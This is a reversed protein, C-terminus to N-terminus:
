GIHYKKAIDADATHFTKGKNIFSYVRAYGWQEPGLRASRPYKKVDGSKSFDKKLRVSAINTKWAGRGRDWVEYLADIPLDTLDALEELGLSANRPLGLKELVQERNTKM